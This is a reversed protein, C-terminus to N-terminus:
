QYRMAALSKPAGPSQPKIQVQYPPQVFEQMNEEQYAYLGRPIRIECIGGM